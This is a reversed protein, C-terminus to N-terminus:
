FAFDVASTDGLGVQRILAADGYVFGEHFSRVDQWVLLDM